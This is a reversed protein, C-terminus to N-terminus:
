GEAGNSSNMRDVENLGIITIAWSGTKSGKDFYSHTRKMDRFPQGMEDPASWKMLQYCTYIHSTSIEDVQKYKKFWSGIVLYKNFNTSIAKQKVYESFSLEADSPDFDKLLEPARPPRKASKAKMGSPATATFTAEAEVAQAGEDVVEYIQQTATGNGSGDPLAQPVPVAVLTRPASSMGRNMIVGAQRLAEQLTEDDGELNLFVFQFKGRKKENAM